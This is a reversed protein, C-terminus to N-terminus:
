KGLVVHQIEKIIKADVVNKDFRTKNYTKNKDLNIEEFTFSKHDIEETTFTHKSVGCGFLPLFQVGCKGYVL